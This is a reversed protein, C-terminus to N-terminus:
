AKLLAKYKDKNANALILNMALFVLAMPLGKPEISVHFLVIHLVVPFIMITALAQWKSVGMMFDLPAGQMPPMPLYHFFFNLGFAMFAAGFLIRVILNVKKM